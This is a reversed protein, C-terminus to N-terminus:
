CSRTIPTITVSDRLLKYQRGYSSMDYESEINSNVAYDISLKGESVKTVQGGSGKRKQSLDINHAALYVIMNDRVSQRITTAIMEDAIGLHLNITYDGIGKFEDALLKFRELLSSPTVAIVLM